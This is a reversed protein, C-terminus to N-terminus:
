FSTSLSFFVRADRDREAAVDRGIPQALYLDLNLRDAFATRVGLGASEVTERRIEGPLPNVQEVTGAEYFGYLQSNSTFSTTYPMYWQLEAKGALGEDGTIESPDYARGYFSSGVGFEESALLEEGFSTQGALGLLLGMETGLPQWRTVEFNLRQYDSDANARSLNADGDESGGLETLGQTFKVEATNSGGVKDLANLFLKLSVNRVKDEFVPDFFDDRSEVDNAMFGGTAILNLDRSRIFPYSLEVRVSQSKGETGIDELELGPNTESYSYSAFLSLGTSTLPQQISVAGYALEPDGDPAVVGTFGLRGATGIIDNLYLGGLIEERGLYRSGLNDVGAFGEFRDREVVLTLDAAGPVTKSPTLVSRVNFGSLDSALLLERELVKSTLPKAAAIRRAHSELFSRAGGPDGEISVQDIFGEVIQIRLQGDGIRQQPVIARTLIYGADRYAATARSALRYVDSLTIDRNVYEAELQQLTSEPLTTNGEFAVDSIQFKQADAGEPAQQEPQDPIGVPAGLGPAEPRPVFRDDIRGSDAPAPPPTRTQAFASASIGIFAVAGIAASVRRLGGQGM